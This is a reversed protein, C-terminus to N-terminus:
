TRRPSRAARRASATTCSRSSASTSTSRRTPRATSRARRRHDRRRLRTQTSGTFFVTNAPKYSKSHARFWGTWYKQISNVDGLIRCDQRTNADAGTPLRLRASQSPPQEPRAHHRRPRRLHRAGGGGLLAFLLYIVIGAVGLGGGGLAIPGGGLRPSRRGAVPRATSRAPIEHRRPTGTPRGESVGPHEIDDTRIQRILERIYKSVM